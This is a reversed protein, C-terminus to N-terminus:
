VKGLANVEDAHFNDLNTSYLAVYERLDENNMLASYAAEPSYPVQAGGKDGVDKWDVLIHQGMAKCLIEKSIAPDLTNNDIKRRYPQQLRLILRQFDLNSTHRIKFKAGGFESWVGQTQPSVDKDIVFM